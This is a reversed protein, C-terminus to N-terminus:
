EAHYILMRQYKLQSMPLELEMSIHDLSLHQRKIVQLRLIERLASLIQLISSIFSSIFFNPFKLTPFNFVSFIEILHCFKLYKTLSYISIEMSTINISKVYDIFTKCCWSRALSLSLSHFPASLIKKNLLIAAPYKNVWLVLFCDISKFTIKFLASAYQIHWKYM